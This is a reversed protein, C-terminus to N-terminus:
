RLTELYAVLDTVQEHSLRLDPMQTGPKFKQPNTLWAALNKPTNMLRGAGLTERSAIHTLNPGADPTPGLGQITHCSICPLSKFLALGTAAPGSKPVSPPKEEDKLWAQFEAPEQAIVRIRMWAHEAGCFQACTGLYVGPRDIEIWVKNPHGPILDIKRGIEPVWWDHIVDASKFEVLVKKGVPFHVDNATVVGSKLYHVEWWWQHGVILMQPSHNRTPPDSIAMVHLTAVFFYCVLALPLLTWLWELKTNGYIQRPEEEGKKRFRILFYTVLGTVILLIIGMWILVVVFLHAIAQEQPSAAIFPTYTQM